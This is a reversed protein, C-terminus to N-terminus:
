NTCSLSMNGPFHEHASKAPLAGVRGLFYAGEEIEDNRRDGYVDTQQEILCMPELGLTTRNLCFYEVARQM